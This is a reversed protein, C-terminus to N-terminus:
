VSRNRWPVPSLSREHGRPPVPSPQSSARAVSERRSRAYEQNAELSKQGFSPPLDHALNWATAVKSISARECGIQAARASMSLDGIINLGMAHAIGFLRILGDRARIRAAASNCYLCAATLGFAESFSCKPSNSENHPNEILASNYTLGGFEL